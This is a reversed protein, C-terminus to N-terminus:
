RWLRIQAVNNSFFIKVADEKSLNLIECIQYAEKILFADKNVKRFFTSPNINLRLSLSAITLGSNSIASKLKDKDIMISDGKLRM